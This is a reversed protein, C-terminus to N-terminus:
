YHGTACTVILCWVIVQRIVRDILMNIIDVVILLDVHWAFGIWRWARDDHVHWAVVEPNCDKTMWVAAVAHLRVAFATHYGEPTGGPM